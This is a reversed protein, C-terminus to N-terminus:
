EQSMASFSITDAIFKNDELKYSVTYIPTNQSNTPVDVTLKGDVIHYNLKDGFEIRGTISPIEGTNYKLIEMPDEIEISALTNIKYIRVVEEIPDDDWSLDLIVALYEDNEIPGYVADKAMNVDNFKQEFQLVESGNFIEYKGIYHGDERRETVHKFVIDEFTIDDNSCASLLLLAFLSMSLLKKM